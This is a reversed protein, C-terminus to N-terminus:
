QQFTDAVVKRSSNAPQGSLISHRVGSLLRVPSLDPSLPVGEFEPGQIRRGLGPLQRVRGLRFVSTRLRLGRLLRRNLDLLIITKTPFHANSNSTKKVSPEEEIPVGMFHHSSTDNVFQDSTLNQM